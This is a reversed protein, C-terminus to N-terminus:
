SPPNALTAEIIQMAALSNDLPVLPHTIKGDRIATGAADIEYTLGYAGFAHDERTVGPLPLRTAARVLRRVPRSSRPLALSRARGELILLKQAKLFPAEIVLTARDGEIVYRNEGERDFGSSLDAVFDPYTLTVRAARDVGTPASQWRGSFGKPYGFLSLTLSLPYIGLDLLSGGGVEPAYFRSQLDFAVPFALEARVSRIRGLRGSALHARVSTVAPLFLTWLGEMAFVQRERAAEAINRVELATRALPKEVLVPLGHGIVQLAQEAHLSNPTAIYVADLRGSRAMRDLDDFPEIKGFRSSFAEASSLSRSCVATVHGTQSLAADRAFADAITGTGIIGWRIKQQM